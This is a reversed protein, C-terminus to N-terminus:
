LEPPWLIGTNSPQIGEPPELSFRNRREGSRCFRNRSEHGRETIANSGGRRGNDCRRQDQGKQRGRIFVRIIVSSGCSLGPYDEWRLTKLKIVDAFNQM